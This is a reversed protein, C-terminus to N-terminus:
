VLSTKSLVIAMTITETQSKRMIISVRTIMMKTKRLSLREGTIISANFLSM